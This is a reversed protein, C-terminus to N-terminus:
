TFDPATTRNITICTLGFQYDTASAHKGNVKFKLVHRGGEAVIMTGSKEVNRTVGAAYNDLGTAFSVDDLYMDWKPASPMARVFAKVTYTGPAIDFSWKYEDGDASNALNAVCYYCLYHASDVAPSWNTVTTYATLAQLFVQQPYGNLAHANGDDEVLYEIENDTDVYKGWFGTAPTDPSSKEKLHIQNNAYRVYTEGDILDVGDDSL